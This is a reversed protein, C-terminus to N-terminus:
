GAARVRGPGPASRRQRETRPYNAWTTRLGPTQRRPLAATGGSTIGGLGHVHQLPPVPGFPCPGGPVPPLDDHCQRLCPLVGQRDAAVEPLCPKNLCQCRPVGRFFAGSEGVRDGQEFPDDVVLGAASLPFERGNDVACLAHALAKLSGRVRRSQGRPTLAGM